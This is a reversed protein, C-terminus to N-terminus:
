VRRRPLRFSEMCSGELVDFVLWHICAFAGNVPDPRIDQGIILHPRKLFDHALSTISVAPYKVGTVLMLRCFTWRVVTHQADNFVADPLQSWELADSGDSLGGVM